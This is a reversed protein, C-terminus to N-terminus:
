KTERSPTPSTEVFPVEPWAERIKILTLEAGIFACFLDFVMALLVTAGRLIPEAGLTKVQEDLQEIAFPSSSVTLGTLWEHDHKALDLARIFFAGYGGSGVLTAMVEHMRDFTREIALAVGADRQTSEWALIRAALKLNQAAHERM